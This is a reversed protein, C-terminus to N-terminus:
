SFVLVLSIKALDDESQIHEVASNEAKRMLIRGQSVWAFKWKKEAKVQRAKRFLIKNELCLHENVYIPDNHELSLHSTNLRTKRAATLFKDRYTRTAFRVVVNPKDKDRSPVRHAVDIDGDSMEIGLCTAMKGVTAKLNEDATRPLGIIEM